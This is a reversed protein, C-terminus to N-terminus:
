RLSSLLSSGKESHGSLQLIRSSASIGISIHLDPLPLLKEAKEPWELLVISSDEFYDRFGMEELEEADSLRYLDFHFVSLDHLEYPEVLTYTPSKVKGEHGLSQIFGRVLTTKGAGLDGRLYIVSGREANQALNGGFEQMADETPIAYESNQM